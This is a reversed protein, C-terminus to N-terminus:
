AAEHDMAGIPRVRHNRARSVAFSSEICTPQQARKAVPRRIGFPQKIARAVVKRQDRLVAQLREKLVFLAIASNFCLIDFVM